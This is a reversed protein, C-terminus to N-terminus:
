WQQASQRDGGGSMPRITQDTETDTCTESEPSSIEDDSSQQESSDSTDGDDYLTETGYGARFKDLARRASARVPRAMKAVPFTIRKVPLLFTREAQSRFLLSHSSVFDVYVYHM